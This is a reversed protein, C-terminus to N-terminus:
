FLFSDLTAVKGTASRTQVGVIRVTEPPQNNCCSNIDKDRDTDLSFNVPRVNEIEDYNSAENEVITADVVSTEMTEEENAIGSHTAM